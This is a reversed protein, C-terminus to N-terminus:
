VHRSPYVLVEGHESTGEYVILSLYRQAMKERPLATEVLVGIGVLEARFEKMLDVVGRATGGGRLFDDIFVARAGPPIARLPLTMQGVLRSSGSVYNVTVAPGETVRGGRRITVLPVNFARATELALPIGKVEMTLVVDPRGGGLLTAFAQGIPTAFQPSSILDTVHLFGGPLVRAPDRLRRCLDEVLARIQERHMQPLYRVGGAAGALTEVRGLRFRDFTQRLFGLDESITSKAAGLLEMFTALPFLQYPHSLLHHAIVVMREGRRLRARRPRREPAAREGGEAAAPPVGRPDLM